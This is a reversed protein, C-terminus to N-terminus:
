NVLNIQNKSPCYIVEQPIPLPKAQPRPVIKMIPYVIAGYGGNTGCSSGDDDIIIEPIRRFGTGNNLIEIEVIRGDVVVARAQGNETLRDRDYITIKPSCYDNGINSIFISDLVIDYNVDDTRIGLDSSDPIINVPAGPTNPDFGACNSVIAVLEGYVPDVVPVPQGVYDKIYITPFAKGPEKKNEFFYDKGRNTIIVVNPIGAIFNAACKPQSSPLPLSIASGNRGGPIDGPLKEVTAENCISNNYEGTSEGILGGFGTNIYRGDTTTRNSGSSGSSGRSTNFLKEKICGINKNKIDQSMDGARNFLDTYKAYKQTLPFKMVNSLTSLIGAIQGITQLTDQSGNSSRNLSSELYTNTIVEINNLITETVCDDGWDLIPTNALAGINGSNNEGVKSSQGNNVQKLIALIIDILQDIFESGFLGHFLDDKVTLASDLKTRINGDRDFATALATARATRNKTYEVNAKSSQAPQKILNAIEIALLRMLGNLDIYNGTISNWVADNFVFRSLGSPVKEKLRRNIATKADSIAGCLGDGLLVDYIQSEPNDDAIETEMRRISSVSKLPGCPLDADTLVTNGSPDKPDSTSSGKENPTTLSVNPYSKNSNLLAFPKDEKAATGDKGKAPVRLNKDSAGATFPFTALVVPKQAEDGDFFFGVVWSGVLLGHKGGARGQQPMTTPMCVHAWPLDETSLSDNGTKANPHWGVCRVKVRGSAKPDNVDEVCGLFFSPSDKGFFESRVQSPIINTM